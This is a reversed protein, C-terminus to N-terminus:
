VMIQSVYTREKDELQQTLKGREVEALRLQKSLHKASRASNHLQISLNNREEELASLQMSMDECRLLLLNSKQEQLISMFRPTNLLGRGM